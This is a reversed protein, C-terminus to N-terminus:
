LDQKGLPKHFDNFTSQFSVYTIFAKVQPHVNLTWIFIQKEEATLIIIAAVKFSRKRRM